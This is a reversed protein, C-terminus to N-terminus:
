KNRWEYTALLQQKKAKQTADHAKILERKRELNSETYKLIRADPM